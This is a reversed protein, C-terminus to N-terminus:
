PNSIVTHVAESECICVSLEFLVLDPSYPLYTVLKQSTGELFSHTMNASHVSVNGLHLVIVSLGIRPRMLEVKGLIALLCAPVCSQGSM